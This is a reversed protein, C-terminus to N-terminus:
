KLSLEYVANDSMQAKVNAIIDMLIEVSREKTPYEGISVRKNQIVSSDRCQTISLEDCMIIKTKDQNLIWLSM